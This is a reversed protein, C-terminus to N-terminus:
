IMKVEITKGKITKGKLIESAKEPFIEASAQAQQYIANDCPQQIVTDLSAWPPSFPATVQRASKIRKSEGRRANKWRKQLKEQWSRGFHKWPAPLNM